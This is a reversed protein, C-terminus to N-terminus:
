WRESFHFFISFLSSSIKGPISIWDIQLQQTVYYIFAKWYNEPKGQLEWGAVLGAVPIL